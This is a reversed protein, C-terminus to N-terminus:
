GEFYSTLLSALYTNRRSVKNNEIARKYLAKDGVLMFLEKARTIATYVVSRNALLYSVSGMALIVCKYESGQAKHVTIAYAHMILDMEKFNMTVYKHKEFLIYVERTDLNIREIIGIEGNFVGKSKETGYRDTWEINYNNKTMIVKDNERFIRSGHQFEVGEPNIVGQLFKNLEFTGLPGKKTPTLVQVDWYLDADYKNPINKKILTELARYSNSVNLDMTFYDEAGDEILDTIGSVILNSNYPIVSTDAQRFVIDLVTTKIKGSEIIDLLVKGPGVSPLQNSDGIFVIRTNDGVAQMLKEFLFVDIMSVEDIIILDADIPNDENREFSLMNDEESFKYELLRHITRAESITSNRMKVAARGTPAALKVKLKSDLAIDCIAEIITTKGTGPGGTIISVKNNFTSIIAEKQKDSFNLGKRQEIFELEAKVEYADRIDYLRYINRAISNITIFTQILFLKDDIARVYGRSILSDLCDSIYSAEIRYQNEVVSFLYDRIIYTSGSVLEMKIVYIIIAEIRNYDDSEYGLNKAIKDVENFSMDKVDFFLTYPNNEITEIVRDGYLNLIQSVKQGKIGLKNLFMISNQRSVIQSYSNKILRLKSKGIGNIELLRDIQNNMIDLTKDGFLDIIKSVTKAGLGDITNYTLFNYIDEVTTPKIYEYDEILFQEGYKDHNVIRGNIQIDQEIIETIYGVVTFYIEDTEFIAITYDNQDNRYIIDTIRGKYIM